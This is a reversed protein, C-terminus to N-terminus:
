IGPMWSLKEMKMLALFICNVHVSQIIEQKMVMDIVEKLSLEVVEIEENHDLKQTSTKKGGRALFMETFNNLIGPNAAFKGIYEVESFEYGTEELLERKWAANSRM